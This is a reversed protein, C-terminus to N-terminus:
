LRGGRTILQTDIITTPVPESTSGRYVRNDSSGLRDWVALWKYQGMAGMSRQPLISWTKGGDDSCELTLLPESGQGSALGVGRQVIMELRDHFAIRGEAYVTPYTWQMVQPDGFDAYITPSLEGIRGTDYDQVLHKGYCYAYSIPRWRGQQWSEREHWQSSTVDLTFTRGVSPFTLVYYIHGALTYTLGVADSKVSFAAIQEEIAHTSVRVPTIGNLRRVTLDSALWMFSNDINVASREAACGLELKGGSPLREFPYGQAGSNYALEVSNTGFQCLQSQNALLDITNDPNSEATAFNLANFNVVQGFDAAFHRGSSPELFIMWNDLFVVRSAGRSTFDTDTIQGFTGNTYYYGEPQSVVVVSDVNSDISTLGSGSIAGLRTETGSEDISYLSSGSVSYLRGKHVHLGRGPGTGVDAWLATGHSRKLIIANKEGQPVVEAYCNVLRKASAQTADLKYTAFPLPLKM